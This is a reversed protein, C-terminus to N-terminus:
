FIVRRKMKMPTMTMSSSRPIQVRSQEPYHEDTSHNPNSETQFSEMFEQIILILLCPTTLLPFVM